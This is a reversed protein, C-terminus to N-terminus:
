GKISGIMVGKVFYKQLFPYLVLVPLSAVIIVGYRMLDAIHQQETVNTTNLDISDSMENSVLIARLIIQLPFLHDDRLYILAQFYSNWHGVASFLIMVAVIPMSLPLVIRLFFRSNSCGDMVAAELLENPITSQFFTRTIIINYASVANPLVMAWVTNVLGLDKVLLYTPILGGGFFMTFVILFMFAKQGALDSRSLAYGATLTLAVNITTGLVTYMLSNRYGMWISSESLIRRYGEFTIDQPLFWLKGANILDPNSISAIVIFYLPYIVIMVICLLIFHNLVDFWKDAKSRSAVM